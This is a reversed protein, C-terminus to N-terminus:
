EEPLRGEQRLVLRALRIEEYSFDPGLFEWVPKLFASGCTRFAHEIDVLKEQTPLLHSIHLTEGQYSIRELHGVVTTEALGREQAIQSITFGQSLLEKTVDMTNGRGRAPPEREPVDGGPEWRVLADYTVPPLGKAEAYARIVDVFDQGYQQLKVEGVGPIRAFQDLTQPIASAMHRLAIDGFVVFPPVNRADALRRRLIRLEEFLREDYDGASPPDNRRIRRNGEDDKGSQPRSLMVTKREQLFERGEPSVTLSAYEGEKRLLLGKARLQGIIDRLEGREFDRVIGYVSLRDHGFDLVRKERSGTLVQVIHVAGFREGTRIM